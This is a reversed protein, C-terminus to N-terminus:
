YKGPGDSSGGGYSGYSPKEYRDDVLVEYATPDNSDKLISELIESASPKKTKATKDVQFDSNEETQTRM